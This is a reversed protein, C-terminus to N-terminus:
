CITISGKGSKDLTHKLKLKRCASKLAKLEEDLLTGPLYAFLVGIKDGELAKIERKLWKIWEKPDIIEQM